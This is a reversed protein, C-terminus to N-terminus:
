YSAVAFWQINTSTTNVRYIWMNFGTNTVANVSVERVSSYPVTTDASVFVRVTASPPFAVPFTVSKSTPDNAVPIISTAGSQFLLPMEGTGNSNLYLGGTTSSIQSSTFNFGAIKGTGNSNLYM